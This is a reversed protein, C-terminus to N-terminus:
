NLLKRAQQIEGVGNLCRELLNVVELRSEVASQTYTNVSVDLSHGLQDAVLKPDSGLMKALSAHTRRMVQFNCWDLGVAELKPFMKRRWCNDKSMPTGKESPFVWGNPDIALKRWEELMLILGNALAAKRLSQNTKPSDIVNRYVRQQIDAYTATVQSWKLGFIEGPRMGGVIALSAIIRERIDLALLCARVDEVTMSMRVPKKASTPTFLMLAPNRPVLGEAVAMDFIQKLDWRLHDVVSFSLIPGKEDLLAQLDDRKMEVLMSDAFASVLHTRIRQKNNECTSAKWKRAYFGFYPGEIFVKFKVTGSLAERKASVIKAAAERAQGKTMDKCLGLVKSRKVGGERWLAHWRGDQKRVGGASHRTGTRM